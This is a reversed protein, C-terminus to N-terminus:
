IKAVIIACNATWKAIMYMMRFIVSGKTFLYIRNTSDIRTTCFIVQRIRVKLWVNQICDYEQQVQNHLQEHKNHIILHLLTPQNVQLAM